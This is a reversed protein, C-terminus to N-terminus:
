GFVAMGRRDKSRQLRQLFVNIEEWIDKYHNYVADTYDVKDLAATVDDFEGDQNYWLDTFIPNEDKQISFTRWYQRVELLGEIRGNSNICTKIIM